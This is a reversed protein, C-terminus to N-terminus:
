PLVDTLSISDTNTAFLVATVVAALFLLVICLILLGRATKHKQVVKDAAHLKTLTKSRESMLKANAEVDVGSEEVLRDFYEETLQRHKDKFERNYQQIPHLIETM